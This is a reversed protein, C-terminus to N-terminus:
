PISWDVAKQGRAVLWENALKFCQSGLFAPNGRTARNAALPMPHSSALVLQKDRNLISSEFSQADNGWLEWVLGHKTSIFELLAETFPAWIRVHSKTDGARLTLATNLLVVGEDVWRSIDGTSRDVAFGNAAVETQISRFSPNIHEAGKPLSFCLGVASGPVRPDAASANAYPDLGLIVVKPTRCALARFVDELLPFIPVTQAQEYLEKSIDRIMAQTAPRAFFDEYGLPVNRGAYLFDYLTDTRWDWPKDELTVTTM